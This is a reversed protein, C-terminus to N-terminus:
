AEEPMVVIARSTAGTAISGETLSVCVSQCAGCGNCNERIVVPRGFADLELAAYPCADYCFKCGNAKAWALCWDHIITAKGLVTTKVTANEALSIAGTPCFQVCRPMGNNEEKCFDCWGEDFNVTPTRVGLIGSEVHSPRLANRPCAEVCRECRICTSILHSEDQGGPPRVQERAPIATLGGMALLVAAGGAGVAFTRRTLDTAHSM